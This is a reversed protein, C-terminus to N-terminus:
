CAGWLGNLLYGHWEGRDAGAGPNNHISPAVTITDGDGAVRWWRGGDPWCANLMGFARPHPNPTRFALARHDAPGGRDTFDFRYWCWEGPALDDLLTNDPRQVAKM